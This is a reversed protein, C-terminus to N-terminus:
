RVPSQHYLVLKELPIYEEDDLLIPKKGSVLRFGFKKYFPVNNKIALLRLVSSNGQRALTDAFRMLVGGYDKGRQKVDVAVEDVMLGGGNEKLRHLTLYGVIKNGHELVYTCFEYESSLMQFYRDSWTIRDMSKVNSQVCPSQLMRTNLREIHVLPQKKTGEPNHGAADLRNNPIENLLFFARDTEEMMMGWFTPIFSSGRKIVLVYSSLEAPKYALAKQACASLTGGSHIAGDLLLVSKGTVIRAANAGRFSVRKRNGVAMPLITVNKALEPFENGAVESMVKLLELGSRTIPCWVTPRVACRSLRNKFFDRVYARVEEKGLFYTIV